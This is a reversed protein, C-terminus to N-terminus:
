KVRFYGPKGDEDIRARIGLKDSNETVYRTGNPGELVYDLKFMEVDKNGNSFSAYNCAPNVYIKELKYNENFM